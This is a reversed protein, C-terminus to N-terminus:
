GEPQASRGVPRRSRLGAALAVAVLTLAISLGGVLDPPGAATPFLLDMLLAGMLQGSTLALGLLLVGLRKVLAAAVVIFTLGIPGSLYLWWQAPGPLPAPPGPGVVVLRVLLLALLGVTFNVVVAAWPTGAVLAVSGNVAKQVATAGGALIAVAVGVGLVLPVVSAPGSGPTGSVAVVVAVVALGTAALRRGTIRRVGHPSVGLRDVLLAGAITGAVAAVTFAAVGLAPVVVGQSSVMAAGGVGGLLRWVPLRRARVGNAVASLGRRGGRHGLTVLMVLSWGIGFSLIAADLGGAVSAPANTGPPVLLGSVEGNVRAQGAVLVGVLATALLPFVLPVVRRDALM